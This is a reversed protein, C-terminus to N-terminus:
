RAVAAPAAVRAPGGRPVQSVIVLLVTLAMIVCLRGTPLSKRNPPITLWDDM